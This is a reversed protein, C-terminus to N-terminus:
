SQIMFVMTDLTLLLGLYDSFLSMQLDTDPNGYHLPGASFMTKEMGRVVGSGAPVSPVVTLTVMSFHTRHFVERLSGPFEVDEADTPTPCSWCAAGDREERSQAEGEWSQLWSFPVLCDGSM